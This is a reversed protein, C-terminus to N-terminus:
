VCKKYWRNGGKKCDQCHEFSDYSEDDHLLITNNRAGSLMSFVKVKGTIEFNCDSAEVAFGSDVNGNIYYKSSISHHALSGGCDGNLVLTLDKSCTGLGSAVNGNIEVTLGEINTCLGKLRSEVWLRFENDPSRKMLCSVLYGAWQDDYSSIIQSLVSVESSSYAPIGFSDFLKLLGYTGVQCGMDNIVVRWLEYTKIFRKLADPMILEDINEPRKGNNFPNLALNM